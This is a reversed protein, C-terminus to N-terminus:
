FLRICCDSSSSHTVHCISKHDLQEKTTTTTPPTTTHNIDLDQLFTVEVQGTVDIMRAASFLWGM